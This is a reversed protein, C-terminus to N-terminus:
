VGMGFPTRTAKVVPIHALNATQDFNFKKKKWTADASPSFGENFNTTKLRAFDDIIPRSPTTLSIAAFYTPLPPPYWLRELDQPSHRPTRRM